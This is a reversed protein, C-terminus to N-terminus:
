KRRFRLICRCNCDEEPINFLGPAKAKGNKTVFYDSFPITTGHLDHHTEREKGDMVSDWSKELDFGNEEASKGFDEQGLVYCRHGDSRVINDIQGQMDNYNGGSLEQLRQFVDKGDIEQYVAKAIMKADPEKFSDYGVMYAASQFGNLYMFIMYEMVDDILKQTIEKDSYEYYLENLEDFESILYNSYIETEDRVRHM